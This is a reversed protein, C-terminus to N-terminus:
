LVMKLLKLVSEPPNEIKQLDPISEKLADIIRQNQELLKLDAIAQKLVKNADLAQAAAQAQLQYKKCNSELAV